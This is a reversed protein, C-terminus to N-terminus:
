KSSDLTHLSIHMCTNITIYSCLTVEALLSAQCIDFCSCVGATSVKTLPCRFLLGVHDAPAKYPTLIADLPVTSSGTALTSKTDSGGLVHQDLLANEGAAAAAELQERPRQTEDSSLTSPVNLMSPHQQQQVPADSGTLSAGSDLLPLLMGASQPQGLFHQQMSPSVAQLQEPSDVPKDDITSPGSVSRAPQPAQSAGLTFTTDHMVADPMDSPTSAVPASAAAPAQSGAHSRSPMGANAQPGASAATGSLRHTASRDTIADPPGSGPQQENDLMSASAGHCDDQSADSRRMSPHDAAFADAAPAVTAQQEASQVAQSHQQPAPQQQPASQHEPASQQQEDSQQASQKKAKQRQKKAKKAEAKAKDAPASSATPAPQAQASQVQKAQQKKAQQKTAKPRQQNAARAAAQALQEEEEAMLEQLARGAAEAKEEAAQM